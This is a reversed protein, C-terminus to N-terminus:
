FDITNEGGWETDIIISFGQANPEFLKGRITTKINTGVTVENVWKSKLVRGGRDIVELLVSTKYSSNNYPVFFYGGFEAYPATSEFIPNYNTNLPMFDYFFYEYAMSNLTARVYAVDSPAEDTIDIKLLGVKRQLVMTVHNSEVTSVEFDVKDLYVEGSYMDNMDHHIRATSLYSIDMTNAGWDGVAIATYPGVELGEIVIGEATGCCPETVQAVLDHAGNYVYLNVNGVVDHPNTTAFLSQQKKSPSIKDTSTEIGSLSFTVDYKPKKLSPDTKKACGWGFVAILSLIYFHKKM